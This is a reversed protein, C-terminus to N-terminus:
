QGIWKKYKAAEINFMRWIQESKFTFHATGKYYCQINFFESTTKLTRGKEDSKLLDYMAQYSTKIESFNAGSVFCLAKDIDDLIDKGSNHISFGLWDQYHFLRPMICKKNVKHMSNTKWGEGGFKTINKDSFSTMKDFCQEVCQQRIQAKSGLLMDLFNYINQECFEVKSQEQQFERFQTKIKSTVYREMNNLNFIQNWAAMRMTDLCSNFSANNANQAIALLDKLNMQEGTGKESLSCAYIKKFKNIGRMMEKLAEAAENYYYVRNRIFNPTALATEVDSVTGDFSSGETKRANFNFVFEEQETKKRLTVMAVEVGTTRESAKFCQGLYKVEGFESILSNLHEREQTSPNLITEANLLCIITTNKAIDWAKLLHKAGLAFPPNMIIYDFSNNCEYQLFDGQWTQFKKERLVACLDPELEVCRITNKQSDYYSGIKAIYQAIDGAGASPELIWKGGANLDKYIEPTIMQSIVNAPTPYFQHQIM